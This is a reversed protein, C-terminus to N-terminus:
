ASRARLAWNLRKQMSANPHALRDALQAVAGDLQAL